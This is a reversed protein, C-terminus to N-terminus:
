EMGDSDAYRGSSQNGLRVEAVSLVLSLVVMVLLVHILHLASSHQESFLM